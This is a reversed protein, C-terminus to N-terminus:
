HYISLTVFTRCCESTEFEVLCNFEVRHSYRYETMYFYFGQACVAPEFFALLSIIFLLKNM